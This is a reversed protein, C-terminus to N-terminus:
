VWQGTLAYWITTALDAESLKWVTIIVSGKTVMLTSGAVRYTASGKPQKKGAPWKYSLKAGYRQPLKTSVAFAERLYSVM